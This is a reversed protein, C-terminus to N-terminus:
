NIGIEETMVLQNRGRRKALYLAEDARVFVDRHGIDDSFAFAGGVSVKQGSETVAQMIREGIARAQLEDDVPVVVAFEDGGIRFVSDDDRLASRLAAAVAKLQRDGEDHGLTDNVLKFHDIDIMFVANLTEQNHRISSM